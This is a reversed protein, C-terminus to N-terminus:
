LSGLTSIQNQFAQKYVDIDDNYTQRLVLGYKLQTMYCWVCM